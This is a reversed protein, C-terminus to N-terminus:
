ESKAEDELGFRYSSSSSTEETGAIVSFRCHFRSNEISEQTVAQAQFMSPADFLDTGLVGNTKQDLLIGATYHVASDAAELAQVQRGFSQAGRAEINMLQVFSYAGLALMAVVLLVVLLVIGAQQLRQNQHIRLDRM